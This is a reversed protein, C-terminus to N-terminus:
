FCRSAQTWIGLGLGLGLDGISFQGGVEGLLKLLIQTPPVPCAWLRRTHILIGLDQNGIQIMIRLFCM